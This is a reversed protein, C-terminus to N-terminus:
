PSGSGQSARAIPSAAVIEHLPGLAQVQVYVPAARRGDRLPVALRANTDSVEHETLLSGDEGLLRVRYSSAREVPSWTAFLTSDSATARLAVTTGAGRLVNSDSAAAAPSHPAENPLTRWIGAALILGAATALSPWWARRRRASVSPSSSETARIEAGRQVLAFCRDCAFYHAEFAEAEEESLRGSLYRAEIDVDEDFPCDATPDSM